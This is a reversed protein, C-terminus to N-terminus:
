GTTRTQVPADLIAQVEAEIEMAAEVTSAAKPIRKLTGLYHKEAVAVSHGLQAASMYVSAGGFIGPACTLYCGCTSRLTPPSRKGGRSFRTSWLFAPAGFDKILRRRGNAATEATHDAFVRGKGGSRLRMIALLRALAPTMGLDLLREKHTKYIVRIEREELDVDEWTVRLAEGLRCGSLLMFLFLLTLPEHKPTTGVPRDGQHEERTMKWTEADYRVCANLLKRLAAPKFPQPKTQDVPLLPMNDTIDDSSKIGPLRQAVRLAQLMTKVVRLECNVSAAERKEGTSAVEGRTGGRKKGRRPLAVSYARFSALKDATLDAALLVRSAKAWVGFTRIASRYTTATTKAWGPSREEVYQDIVEELKKGRPASRRAQKIAQPDAGDAVLGIKKRAETRAQDISLTQSTGLKYKRQRDAEARYKVYFTCRGTPSVFAFLGAVVTDWVEERRGNAAAMKSAQAVVANNLRAQMTM